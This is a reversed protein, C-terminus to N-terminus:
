SFSSDTVKSAQFLYHCKLKSDIEPLLLRRLSGMRRWYLCHTIADKPKDPDPAIWSNIHQVETSNCTGYADDRCYDM